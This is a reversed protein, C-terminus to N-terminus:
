PEPDARALTWLSLHVAIAARVLNGPFVPCCPAVKGPVLLVQHQHLPRRVECGSSSGAHAWRSGSSHESPLSLPELPAASTHKCTLCRSGM